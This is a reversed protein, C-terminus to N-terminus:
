LNKLYLGNGIITVKKLHRCKKYNHGNHLTGNHSTGNYSTGGYFTGNHSSGNHFTENHFIKIRLLQM